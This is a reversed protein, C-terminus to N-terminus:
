QITQVLLVLCLVSSIKGELQHHKNKGYSDMKALLHLLQRHQQCGMRVPMKNCPVQLFLCLKGAVVAIVVVEGVVVVGEEALLTLLRISPNATMLYLHQAMESMLVNSTVTSLLKLYMHDEYESGSSDNSCSDDDESDIASLIQQVAQAATYRYRVLCQESSMTYHADKASTLTSGCFFM